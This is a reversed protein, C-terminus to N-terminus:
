DCGPARVSETSPFGQIFNVGQWSRAAPWEWGISGGTCISVGESPTCQCIWFLILPSAWWIQPTCSSHIGCADEALPNQPCPGGPFNSFQFLLHHLKTACEVVLCFCPQWKSMKYPNPLHEQFIFPPHKPCLWQLFNGEQAPTINTLRPYNLPANVM